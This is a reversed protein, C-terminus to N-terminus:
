LILTCPVLPETVCVAGDSISSVTLSYCRSKYWADSLGSRMSLYADFKMAVTGCCASPKDSM